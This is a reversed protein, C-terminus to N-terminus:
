SDRGGGIVGEFFNGKHIVRAQPSISTVYDQLDKGPVFFVNSDYRESVYLSPTIKTEGRVERPVTMIVMMIMVIILLEIAVSHGQHRYRCIM